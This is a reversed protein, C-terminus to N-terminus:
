RRVWSKHNIVRGVMVDSVGSIRALYSVSAGEGHLHRICDVQHWTLRRRGHREREMMDASNDAITGLRLHSPRVCSANDCSHLACRTETAVPIAFGFAVLRHALFNRRTRPVRILGYGKTTKAGTWIWCGDGVKVKSWFRMELDTM